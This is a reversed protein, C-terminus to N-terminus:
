PRPPLGPRGSRSECLGQARLSEIYTVSFVTAITHSVWEHKLQVSKLTSDLSLSRQISHYIPEETHRIVLTLVRLELKTFM